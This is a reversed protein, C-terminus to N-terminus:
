IQKGERAMDTMSFSIGVAGRPVVLMTRFTSDTASSPTLSERYGSYYVVTEQLVSGGADFFLLSVDVSDFQWVSTVQGDLSMKRDDLSYSYDLTLQDDNYTGQGGGKETFLIRNQVPIVDGVMTCGSFVLSIIVIMFLAAMKGTSVDLPKNM